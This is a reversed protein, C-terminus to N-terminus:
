VDFDSVDFAVNLIPQDITLAECIFNGESLSCRIAERFICLYSSCSNVEQGGSGSRIDDIIGSTFPNAILDSSKGWIM